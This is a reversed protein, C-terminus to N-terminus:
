VENVANYADLVSRYTITRINNNDINYASNDLVKNIYSLYTLKISAVDDATSSVVESVLKTTSNSDFGFTKVTSVGAKQLFLPTGDGGQLAFQHLAGGSVRFGYVPVDNPARSYVNISFSDATGTRLADSLRKTQYDDAELTFSVMVELPYRPSVQLPIISNVGYIEHYNIDASLTFDTVRNSGSNRFALHIDSPYIPLNDNEVKDGTANFTDLANKYIVSSDYNTIYIGSGIDGFVKIGVNSQPIDGYAVSYSYSSVYGSEFGFVKNGYNFSGRFGKSGLSSLSSSGFPDLRDVLTLSRNISFDAQPIEAVVSKVVGQGLVNIPKVGHSYSGDVSTVGKLKVGDIFVSQESQILANNM